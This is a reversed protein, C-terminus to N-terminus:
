NWRSSQWFRRLYELTCGLIMKCDKVQWHAGRTPEMCGTGLGHTWQSGGAAQKWLKSTRRTRTHTHAHTHKDRHTVTHALARARARARTHTHVHWHAARTRLFRNQGCQRRIFGVVTGYCRSPRRRHQILSILSLVQYGWGQDQNRIDRIDRLYGPYGTPGSERIDPVGASRIGGSADRIKIGTM